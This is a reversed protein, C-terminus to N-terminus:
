MKRRRKSASTDLTNIKANLDAIMKNKEEIQVNLLKSSKRHSTYNATQDTFTKQLEIYKQELEEYKNTAETGAECLKAMAAGVDHTDVTDSSTDASPQLQRNDASKTQRKELREARRTEMNM